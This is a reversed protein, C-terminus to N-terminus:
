MASYGGDVMLITGTVYSSAQSALFIVSGALEEPKGRRGMPTFTKIQEQKKLDAHVDGAGQMINEFYGPAFGNVRIGKNAWEVAMTKVLQNVGGKAAAYAVLGHIGVVSAISSNMIISGGTGQQLMQKAAAQACNFYGKLDVNIIADWENETLEEAPKIIDIGANCVMVDLKGYHTVTQNVLQLCAERITVDVGLALANGITRATAEAETYDIDAIVVGAGADALGQAIAKGLGRAAGTVIAVKETLDFLEQSM